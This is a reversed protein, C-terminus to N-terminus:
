FNEFDGLLLGKFLFQASGFFPRKCSGAMAHGVAPSWCGRAIPNGRSAVCGLQMDGIAINKKKQEKKAGKLPV